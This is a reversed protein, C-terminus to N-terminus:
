STFHLRALSGVKNQRRRIPPNPTEESVTAVAQPQMYEDDESSPGVDNPQPGEDEESREGRNNEEMEESTDSESLEAMVARLEVYLEKRSLNEEPFSM